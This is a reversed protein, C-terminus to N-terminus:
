RLVEAIQGQALEPISLVGSEDGREASNKSSTIFGISTKNPNPEPLVRGDIEEGLENDQYSVFFDDYDSQAHHHMTQRLRIGCYPETVSACRYAQVACANWGVLDFGYYNKPAPWSTGALKYEGVKWTAATGVAIGGESSPDGM